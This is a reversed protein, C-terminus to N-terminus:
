SPRQVVTGRGRREPCRVARVRSLWCSKDAALLVSALQTKDGPEAIFDAAFITLFIKWDM